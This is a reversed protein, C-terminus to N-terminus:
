ISHALANDLGNVSKLIPAVMEEPWSLPGLFSSICEASAHHHVRRRPPLVFTCEHPCEQLFDRACRMVNLWDMCSKSKNSRSHAAMAILMQADSYDEVQVAVTRNVGFLEIAAQLKTHGFAIEYVNWRLKARAVWNEFLGLENIADKLDDIEYRDPKRLQFPNPRLQGLEVEIWTSSKQAQM